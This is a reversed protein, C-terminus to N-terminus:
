DMLTNDDKNRNALIQFLNLDAVKFFTGIYNLVVGVQKGIELNLDVEDISLLDIVKASHVNKYM